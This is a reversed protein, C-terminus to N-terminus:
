TFNTGGLAGFEVAEIPLDLLRKISEPGMGQGVEKVIVRINSNKVFEQDLLQKIQAITENDINDTFVEAENFDGKIFM